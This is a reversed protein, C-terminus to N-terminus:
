LTLVAGLNVSNDDYGQWSGYVDKDELGGGNIRTSGFEVINTDIYFSVNNLIKWQVGIIIDLVTSTLRYQPVPDTSSGFAAVPSGSNVFDNTLSLKAGVYPAWNGSSLSYLASVFLTSYNSPYPDTLDKPNNYLDLGARVQLPIANLDLSVFPASAGTGGLSVNEVGVGLKGGLVELASATSAVLAVITLALLVKKM